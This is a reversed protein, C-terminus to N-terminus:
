AADLHHIETHFAERVQAASGTFDIVLANEYVRNIAFGHSELWGQVTNLDAAALGFRAGLQQPTLWKYIDRRCLLM